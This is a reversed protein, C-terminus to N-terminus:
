LRHLLLLTLDDFREGNQFDEVTRVIHTGLDPPSASIQNAVLLQLRDSGFLEQTPSAAETVGDTYLFLTEGQGLDAQGTKYVYGDIVGMAPNSLRGFGTVPCDPKLLLAQDHGANAYDIRGSRVDYYALFLTVFMCADNNASLTNNAKFLARGPDSESPCINRLLTRTVAMFLAAAVGKGSVDGIILCLRGDELFFADYFDGAVEKAPINVAYIDFEPQDTFLQQLPPLMSEQIQRAIRVESMVSERAATEEQLRQTYDSLERGLDNFTRGLQRIERPGSPAVQSQFLGQGVKALGDRLHLIPKSISGSFWLALVLGVVLAALLGAAMHGTMVEMSHRGAENIDRLALDRNSETIDRIMEHVPLFFQDINVSATVIFSSDPVRIMAMYKKRVKNDTDLFTYYGGVEKETLGKQVLAWMDPFRDKWDAFTRGEVAPNPHLVAVGHLDLLDMYGVRGWNTNINQTAVERLEKDRRLADYDLNSRGKFLRALEHAVARTQFLVLREGSATMIKESLGLNAQTIDSIAKRAAERDTRSLTRVNFQSLVTIILLLILAMSLFSILLRTRIKM